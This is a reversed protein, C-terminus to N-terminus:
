KAHPQHHNCNVCIQLIRRDLGKYTSSAFREKSCLKESPDLKSAKQLWRTSVLVRLNWFSIVCCQMSHCSMKKFDRSIVESEDFWRLDVWIVEFWRLDGWIVDVLRFFGWKVEFKVFSFMIICTSVWFLWTCDCANVHLWLVRQICGLFCDPKGKSEGYQRIIKDIKWEPMKIRRGHVILDSFQQRDIDSM